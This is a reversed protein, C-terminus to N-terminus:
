IIKGPHFKCYTKILWVKSRHLHLLIGTPLEPLGWQKWYRARQEALTSGGLTHRPVQQICLPDIGYLRLGAPLHGGIWHDSPARVPYAHALLKRAASQRILYGVAGFAAKAFRGIRYGDALTQRHWWSLQGSHHFLLLLEWDAPLAERRALVSSLGPHLLADDELILAIDINERVMRRYLQLHSLACGIEGPTLERGITAIARDPSYVGALERETLTQGDVAPVIEFPLGRERLHATIYARREPSRALNVVWLPPPPSM